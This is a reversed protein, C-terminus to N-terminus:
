IHDYSFISEHVIVHFSAIEFCIYSRKFYLFIRQRDDSFVRAYNTELKVCKVSLESEINSKNICEYQKM